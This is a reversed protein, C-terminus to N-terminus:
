TNKNILLIKCHIYRELADQWQPMKGFGAKELGRMSLRSNKPRMAKAPWAETPISHVTVNMKMENFITEAFQAWSCCGSNCAHYTGYKETQVMDCLLIALDKSYSPAGFQDAVVSIESRHKGLQIMTDVFNRGNKGFVWSIRVIFYKRLVGRVAEEGEWKTQGYVNLPHVPDDVEHPKNGTDGFVYDTSIYLMKANIMRCAEAIYSTGNANVNRCIEPEEEAQDAATYAACHIVVTPLYTSIYHLTAEKDTIDFDKSSTGKFEIGRNGLEECIDHGLLGTAGTVLVRM